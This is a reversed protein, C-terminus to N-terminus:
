VGEARPEKLYSATEYGYLVVLLIIIKYSIKIQAKGPYPPICFLLCYCVNYIKIKVSKISSLFVFSESSFQLLSKSSRM